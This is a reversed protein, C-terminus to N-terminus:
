YQLWNGRADILYTKGSRETWDFEDNGERRQYYPRYTDRSIGVQLVLTLGLHGLVSQLFEGKVELIEGRSGEESDRALSSMDDWVRSRFVPVGGCLWLRQDDDPQLGFASVIPEGPRPPPFHIGKGREDAQDIGSHRRSDDLWPIIQFPPQSFRDHGDGIDSFNFSTPGSPSTQLTILLSRATEHPVLASQVTIMESNQERSAHVAASVTVWDRNHGAVAEFDASTLSWRWDPGAAEIAEDPAPVPPPDRRDALWRGDDRLPLFRALWETYSDDASTPDKYATATEALEAGVTLLAHVGTYFSLNDQDPWTSHDPFSRGQDYVQAQSRPDQGNAFQSYGDLTAAVQAARRAVDKETGGFADSLDSCWYREFDFFFRERAGEPSEGPMGPYLRTRAERYEMEAWNAVLRKTLLTADADQLLAAAHASLDALARQALVQNAAHHPGRIIDILWDTFGSLMDASPEKAARALALLLWMRAHLSYFPLRSDTFAAVSGPGAAIRALADLEGKCGLEALLLVAHAAQWRIQSSIDGLAAWILGATGEAPSAPPFPLKEVPGDASTAAPALDEFLDALADFVSGADAPTLANALHSALLFYEGYTLQHATRGLERFATQNLAAVTTDMLQAAAELDTEEYARTSISHAFRTAMTTGLRQRARRLGPTQPLDMAERAIDVFDTERSCAAKSLANLVEPRRAPNQDLATKIVARREERRWLDRLAENWATETTFDSGAFTAAPSAPPDPSDYRPNERPLTASAAAAAECRTFAEFVSTAMAAHEDTLKPVVDTWSSAPKFAYLSLFGTRDAGHGAAARFAPTVMLDFALSRRDRARSAATLYTAEHMGRLREAFELTNLGDARELEEAIQFLRYARTPEGGTALAKATNTLAQWRYWLDDGVMEAEKVALDFLAQAESASAALVARALEILTGVRSDSDTRERLAADAGRGTVQLGFAMLPQSRCAIRAVALRSRALPADSARHWDSLRDILQQRPSAALVRTAIEAIGNVLVYPTNYDTVPKLDREFLAEFAPMADQSGGTLTVALWCEAWPLLGPVNAKFDGSRGDERDRGDLARSIVESAISEVALPRGTLRARFAHGLLASTPPLSPWRSGAHDEITAPLHIDLIRLADPESILGARLAHVLTWVVGRVDVESLFRQRDGFPESRGCLMQTLAATAESDPAVNCDYLTSVVALQVYEMGAGAVALQSLEEYRGADALRSCLRSAVDGAFNEPGWRRLFGALEAPGGINAAAMAIDAVEAAGINRRSSRPPNDEEPLRLLAALNNFASRRRSRALDRFQGIGSLMAAEVHLNSGPWRTALERGSCLGEVADPSLFMATLDPHSRFMKMKRSHGSSTEGAKVALLAADAFRGVRLMASLAFRARARAIEREQLQGAGDPLGTDSLAYEALEDLMGAEFLLQPLAGAVYASTAALARVKAAFTRMRGAVPRHRNRFWTETPEDRFQLVNDAAHLGRGLSAAFSRFADADLSTVAALADLPIPPPLTALAECLRALEDPTLHGQDAVEDVQRALLSDLPDGATNRAIRIASLAEDATAANEVAMAQVRPNGGSLAHLEAGDGETADPFRARLYAVSEAKGFGTLELQTVGSAPMRLLHKREPRCLQVIRTNAPWSERFLDTVFTAQQLDGAILAANDAADVVVTLLAQPSAQELRRAAEGIRRMFVRTYQADSGTAPILPTCLGHAALENSLQTLAVQHSHRRSTVKRYDGGAFCDYALTVSDSPLAQGLVSALVSKGLGGVATILVKCSSGATLASAVRDVDVTRIVHSPRQIASPAPFLEEATTRLTVLVDSADLTQTGILSTACRSIREMMQSMESGTGGGPLFQALQDRLRLEMDAVGPIGDEVAFRQCFDAEHSADDGFGMYRRLLKAEAEYTCTKSGAALEELSRLVKGSTKRNAVLAFQLKAQRGNGLEQRYIAAFKGLTKKFGSAVIEEDTRLTSHKLQVYRYRTCSEADRGGYYEAVDIVEEGEVVEGEPLGEVGIVTLDGAPDLLCLARCAAWYYHFRDGDRSARVM